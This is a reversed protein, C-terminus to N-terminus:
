KWAHIVLAWSSNTLNSYAGTTKNLGIFTQTASGFRVYINTADYYIAAGTGLTTANQPMHAIFPYEDGVVWGSDNTTCKLFAQVLKPKVTLLHGLTLSGAATITQNGSNYDPDGIDSDPRGRNTFYNTGDTFIHIGQYQDLTISAAGDITSTTPTITVTGAGLSVAQFTFGSEFGSTAGAQPLTVAISSANTFTVLKCRDGKVVTYTTGTQANIIVGDIVVESGNNQVITQQTTTDQWMEADVPSSPASGGFQVAGDKLTVSDIEVGHAATKEVIDDTKIGANFTVQGTRATTGDTLDDVAGALVADNDFLNTFESDVPTADNATGNTFTETKSDVSVM